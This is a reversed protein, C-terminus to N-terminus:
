YMFSLKKKGFRGTKFFEVDEPIFGVNGLENQFIKIIKKESLKTM